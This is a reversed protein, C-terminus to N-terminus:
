LPYFRLVWNLLESFYSPGQVTNNPPLLPLHDQQSKTGISCGEVRRWTCWFFPPLSHLPHLISHPPPPIHAPHPCRTDRPELPPIVSVAQTLLTLPSSALLRCVNRKMAAVAQWCQVTDAQGLFFALSVHSSKQIWINNGPSKVCPSLSHWRCNDSRSKKGERFCFFYLRWIPKVTLSAPRRAKSYQHLHVDMWGDLAESCALPLIRTGLTGAGRRPQPIFDDLFLM